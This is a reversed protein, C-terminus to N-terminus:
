KRRYRWCRTWGWVPNQIFWQLFPIPHVSPLVRDGRTGIIEEGTVTGAKATGKM